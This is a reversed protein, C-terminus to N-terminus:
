GNLYCRFFLFIVVIDKLFKFELSGVNIIVFFKIKMSVSECEVFLLWLPNREFLLGIIGDEARM